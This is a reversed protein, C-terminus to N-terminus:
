KYAKKHLKEYTTIYWNITKKGEYGNVNDTKSM